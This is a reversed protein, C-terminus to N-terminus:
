RNRRHSPKHVNISSIGAQSRRLKSPFSFGRTTMDYIIFLMERIQIILQISEAKEGLHPRKHGSSSPLCGKLLTEMSGHSQQAPPHEEPRPSPMQM